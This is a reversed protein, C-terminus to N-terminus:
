VKGQWNPVITITTFTCFILLQKFLFIFKIIHINKINCGIISKNVPILILKLIEKEKPTM